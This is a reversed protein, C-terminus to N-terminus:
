RGKRSLDANSEGRTPAFMNRLKEWSNRPQAQRDIQAQGTAEHEPPKTFAGQEASAWFAVLALTWIVIRLLRVIGGAGGTTM